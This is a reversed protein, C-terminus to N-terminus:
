SINLDQFSFDSTSHCCVIFINVAAMHMLSENYFLMIIKSRNLWTSRNVLFEGSPHLAPHKMHVDQVGYLYTVLTANEQAYKHSKMVANTGRDSWYVYDEFVTLSHIHNVTQFPCPVSRINVILM